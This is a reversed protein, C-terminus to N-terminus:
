WESEQIRPTQDSPSPHDAGEWAGRMAAGQGTLETGARLGLETGGTRAEAVWLDLGLSEVSGLCPDRLGLTQSSLRPPRLGLLGRLEGQWRRM